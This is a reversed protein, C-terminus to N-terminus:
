LYDEESYEDIDLDYIKAVFKKLKEIRGEKDQLIDDLEKIRKKKDKIKKELRKIEQEKNFKAIRKMLKDDLKVNELEEYPFIDATLTVSNIIKRNIGELTDFDICGYDYSFSTIAGEHYVINEDDYILINTKKYNM